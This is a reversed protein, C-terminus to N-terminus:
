LQASVNDLVTEDFFRRREDPAVEIRAIDGHSRVRFQKFGM